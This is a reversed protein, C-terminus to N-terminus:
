RHHARLWELLDPAWTPGWTIDHPSGLMRWIDVPGDAPCGDITFVDTEAGYNNQGRFSSADHDFANFAVGRLGGTCGNFAAEQEWSGGPGLPPLVPDPFTKSIYRRQELPVVPDETGHVSLIPVHRSPTCPPDSASNAGGSVIAGAAFLEAHTCLLRWTMFAGNSDGAVFVFRHDIGNAVVADQVMQALMTADDPPSATDNCCAKSANWSPQNRTNRSGTPDLIVLSPTAVSAMGWKAYLERGAGGVGHLILLLASSKDAASAASAPPSCASLVICLFCLLIRM